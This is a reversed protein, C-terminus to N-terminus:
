VPSITPLTLHTYSVAELRPVDKQVAAATRLGLTFTGLGLVLLLFPTLVLAVTLSQGVGRGQARRRRRNDRSPRQINSGRNTSGNSMTDTNYGFRATEPRRRRQDSRHPPSCRVASARLLRCELIIGPHDILGRSAADPLPSSPSDTDHHSRDSFSALNM